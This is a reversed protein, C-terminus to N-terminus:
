RPDNKKITTIPIGAVVEKLFKPLFGSIRLATPELADNL